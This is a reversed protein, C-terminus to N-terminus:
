FCLAHEIELPMAILLESKPVTIIGFHAIQGFAQLYIVMVDVNKMLRQEKLSIVVFVLDPSPYEEVM